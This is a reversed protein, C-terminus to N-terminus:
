TKDIYQLSQTHSTHLPRFIQLVDLDAIASDYIRDGMKHSQSVENHNQQGRQIIPTRSPRVFPPRTHPIPEAHGGTPTPITDESMRVDMALYRREIKIHRSLSRSKYGTHTESMSIRSTLPDLQPISGRSVRRGSSVYRPERSTDHHRVHSTCYTNAM